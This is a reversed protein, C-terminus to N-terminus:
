CGLCIPLELFTHRHGITKHYNVFGVRVPSPFSTPFCDTASMDLVLYETMVCGRGNSM